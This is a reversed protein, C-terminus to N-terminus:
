PCARPPSRRRCNRRPPPSRGRRYRRCTVSISNSGSNRASATSCALSRESFFTMDEDGGLGRFHVAVAFLHDAEGVLVALVARKMADIQFSDEDLDAQDGVGFPQLSREREGRASFDLDIRAACVESGPTNAAPSQVVARCASRMAMPSPEFAASDAKSWRMRMAAALGLRCLVLLGRVRANAAEQHRRVRGWRREAASRCSEWRWRRWDLACSSRM